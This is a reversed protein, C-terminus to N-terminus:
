QRGTRCRLGPSGGRRPVVKGNWGEM